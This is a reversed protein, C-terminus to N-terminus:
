RAVVRRSEAESMSSRRRRRSNRVGLAPSNPVEPRHGSDTLNGRTAPREGYISTLTLDPASDALPDRPQARRSFVFGDIQAPTEHCDITLRARLRHEHGGGMPVELM